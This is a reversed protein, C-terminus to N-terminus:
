KMSAADMMVSMLAPCKMSVTTLARAALENREKIRRAGGVARFSSESPLSDTSGTADSRM